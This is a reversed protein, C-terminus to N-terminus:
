YFQEINEKVYVMIRTRLFKINGSIFSRIKSPENRYTEVVNRLLYSFKDEGAQGLASTLSQVMAADANELYSWYSDLNKDALDYLMKYAILPRYIKRYGLKLENELM